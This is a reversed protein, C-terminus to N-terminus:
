RSALTYCRVETHGPGGTPVSHNAGPRLIVELPPLPTGAGRKEYRTFDDIKIFLEENEICLEENKFYLIYIYMSYVSGVPAMLKISASILSSDFTAPSSGLNIVFVANQIPGGGSRALWTSELQLQGAVFRFTAASANQTVGQFVWLLSSSASANSSRPSPLPVSDGDDDVWEWGVSRQRISRIRLQPNYGGVTLTMAMDDTVLFVVAGFTDGAVFVSATLGGSESEKAPLMAVVSFDGREAGESVTLVGSAPDITVGHPPPRNMKPLISPDIQEAPALSWLIGRAVVPQGLQDRVVATYNYSRSDNVGVAATGTISVGTPELLVLHVPLVSVAEGVSATVNILTDAPLADSVTLSATGPSQGAMITVAPSDCTTWTLPILMQQGYQDVVEARYSGHRVSGNTPREILSPGSLFVKTAILPPPPPPLPGCMATLSACFVVDRLYSQGFQPVTGPMSGLTPSFRASSEPWTLHLGNTGASLWCKPCGAWSHKADTSTTVTVMFPEGVELRVPGIPYQVWKAQGRFTSAPITVEALKSSNAVRWLRATHAGAEAATAYFRVATAHGPVSVAFVQGQEYVQNPVPPGNQQVPNPANPDDPFIREAASLGGSVPGAPSPRPRSQLPLEQEPIVAGSSSQQGGPTSAAACGAAWLLASSPLM